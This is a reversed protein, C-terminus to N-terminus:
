RNFAKLDAYYKAIWKEIIDVEIERQTTLWEPDSPITPLIDLCHSGDTITLKLKAMMTLLLVLFLTISQQNVPQNNKDSGEEIDPSMQCEKIYESLVLPEYPFMTNYNNVGMPSVMERCVQWNWGDDTESQVIPANVYCKSKDLHAVVGAFIKSLIVTGAPVGDDVSSCINNVPYDPPSNYQAAEEFLLRLFDILETSKKLRHCTKFKKSLISLGNPMSATKNIESWSKWITRYCTESAEKYDKTVIADYGTQPSTIFILSQLLPRWLELLLM